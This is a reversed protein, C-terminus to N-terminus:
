GRDRCSIARGSGTRSLPWDPEISPRNGNLGAVEGFSSGVSSGGAGAPPDGRRRLTRRDGGSRTRGSPVQVGLDHQLRGGARYRDEVQDLQAVRSGVQQEPGPPPQGRASGQRRVRDLRYGGLPQRDGGPAELGADADDARHARTLGGGAHVGEGPLQEAPLGVVALAAGCGECELDLAVEAERDLLHQTRGAAPLVVAFEAQVPLPGPVREVLRLDIRVRQGEADARQEVLEEALAPLREPVLGVGSQHARRDLQVSELLPGPEGRLVDVAALDGPLAAGGLDFCDEPAARVPGAASAAPAASPLDAPLERIQAFRFPHKRAGM